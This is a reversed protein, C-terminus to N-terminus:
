CTKTISGTLQKRLEKDFRSQDGAVYLRDYLLTDFPSPVVLGAVVKSYDYDVGGIRFVPNQLDLNQIHRNTILRM